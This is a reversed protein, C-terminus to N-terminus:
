SALVPVGEVEVLRMAGDQLESEGFVANFESM